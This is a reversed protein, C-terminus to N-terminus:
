VNMTGGHTMAHPERQTPRFPAVQIAASGTRRLHEDRKRGLSRDARGADLALGQCAGWDCPADELLRSGDPNGLEIAVLKRQVLANNQPLSRSDEVRRWARQALTGPRAKERSAAGDAADLCIM